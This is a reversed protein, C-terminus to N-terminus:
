PVQTRWPNDKLFVVWVTNGCSFAQGHFMVCCGLPISYAGCFHNRILCSVIRWGFSHIFPLHLSTSQWLLIPRNVHVLPQLAYHLWFDPHGYGSLHQQAAETAGNICPIALTILTSGGIAGCFCLLVTVDWIWSIIVVLLCYENFCCCLWTDMHYM